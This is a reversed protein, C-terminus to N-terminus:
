GKGQHHLNKMKEAHIILKKFSSKLAIENLTNAAKGMNCYGFTYAAGSFDHSLRKILSRNEAAIAHEIKELYEPINNKFNQEM